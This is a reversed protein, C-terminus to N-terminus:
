RKKSKRSPIEFNTCDDYKKAGITRHAKNNLVKLVFLYTTNAVDSTRSGNTINKLPGTMASNGNEFMM